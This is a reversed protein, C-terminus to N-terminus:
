WVPKSLMGVLALLDGAEHAIRAISVRADEDLRVGLRGYVREDKSSAYGGWNEHAEWLERWLLAIDAGEGHMAARVSVRDQAIVAAM